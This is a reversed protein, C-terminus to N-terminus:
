IYDKIKNHIEEHVLWLVLIIADIHIAYQNIGWSPCFTKLQLPWFFNKLGYDLFLCDFFLHFVWGASIVYFIKAWKLNKKYHLIIALSLFIISFVLSHTFTGHLNLSSNTFLHYFWALIIDLDPLLGAIGGVVLLYRPFKHKGFVYHRFLDLLVITLIVHTVALAM